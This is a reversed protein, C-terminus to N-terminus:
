SDGSKRVTLAIIMVPAGTCTTTRTIAAKRTIFALWFGATAV